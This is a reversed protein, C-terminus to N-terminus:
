GSFRSGATGYYASLETDHDAVAQRRDAVARQQLQVPTPGVNELETYFMQWQRSLGIRDRTITGSSTPIDRPWLQDITNICPQYLTVMSENLCLQQREIGYVLGRDVPHTHRQHPDDTADYANDDLNWGDSLDKDYEFLTINSDPDLADVLNVAFQAMEQLQDETYVPRIGTTPNPQNSMMAYNAFTGAAFAPPGAAVDATWTVGGDSVTSGSTTPWTPPTTNTTGPTTCIYIHGNPGNPQSSVVLAGTTYAAGPRWANAERGGGTLYLLTYIDRAMRQRDYRALWEQQQMNNATLQEPEAVWTVSPLSGSSTSGSLTSVQTAPPFPTIATAAVHQVATSPHPTLPRFRFQYIPNGNSDTGNPYMETLGNVSLLRQPLITNTLVPGMDIWTVTGDPVTAGAATPWNPQTAGSTGAATCRYVSGNPPSPIVMQGVTYATNATWTSQNSQNPNALIQILNAVATRM